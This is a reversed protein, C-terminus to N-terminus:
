RCGPQVVSCVGVGPHVATWEVALAIATIMNISKVIFYLPLPSGVRDQQLSQETPQILNLTTLNGGIIALPIGKYISGLGTTIILM